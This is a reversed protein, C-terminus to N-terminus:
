HRPLLCTFGAQEFHRDTTFADRIGLRRMVVFSTCDVLGWQKDDRAEYLGLAQELVDRDVYAVVGQTSSILRRAAVSFRGRANGRALGNGAEAVVHDTVVVEDYRSQLSKWLATARQHLADASNLLALWGNTDLFVRSPM